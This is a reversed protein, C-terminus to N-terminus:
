ISQRLNSSFVRCDSKIVFRRRVLTMTAIMQTTITLIMVSRVCSTTVGRTLSECPKAWRNIWKYGDSGSCPIIWIEQFAVLSSVWWRNGTPLTVATVVSFVYAIVLFHRTGFLICRYLISNLKWCSFFGDFLCYLLLYFRCKELGQQLLIWWLLCGRKKKFLFVLRSCRFVQGSEETWGFFLYVYVSSVQIHQLWNGQSACVLYVLSVFLRLM